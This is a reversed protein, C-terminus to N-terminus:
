KVSTLDQGYWKISLQSLTGDDKMAQIAEAIKKNFEDDGPLTAIVIPCYVLGGGLQKIPYGAKIAAYIVIDDAVVADLRVGDGLRLDDLANNASEYVKFKDSVFKYDFDPVGILDEKKLNHKVYDLSMSGATVGIDKGELDALSTAKSDKHVAAIISSYFYTAPFNFLKAREKTPAMGAVVIDWRGQWRGSTILDWAPTKYEVKVGLHEAIKRSVDVDLGVLKGQEDLFSNPPYNPSVAVTLTKSALVKDLVEGASASIAVLALAAIGAIQAIRKKMIKM